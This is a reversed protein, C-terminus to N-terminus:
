RTKEINKMQINCYKPVDNVEPLSKVYVSLDKTDRHGFEEVIDTIINLEEPRLDTDINRDPCNCIEYYYNQGKKTKDEFEHFIHNENANEICDIIKKSYPGQSYNLYLVGTLRCKNEKQRSYERDCLYALKLIKARSLKQNPYKRQHIDVIKSLVDTITAM